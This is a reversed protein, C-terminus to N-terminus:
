WILSSGQSRAPATMAVWYAMQVSVIADIKESSEKKNFMVREQADMILVANGMCWRLLPRGEHTVRRDRIARSMDRIPENFMSCSQAMRVPELGEQLFIENLIQGNYPDYAIRTIGFERCCELVDEALQTIPLPSRILEEEYIWQAFPDVTIDRDCDEAIYSKSQVEYRYVPNDADDNEQFRAVMGFSALDDRGGLDVGIGIYDAQSWDSLRGRCADWEELNFAKTLSSVMQNCHYRKFANLRVPSRSAESAAQELYDKRISIGLNPNAKIWNTSDLPDDKDDLEFCYAFLQNDVVQKELVLKAYKYEEIWLYSTDDGATTVTVLLPQARYGSGTQMTNYFDKHQKRWAHLEDMLCMTPSLGDYPKDSGVCRISGLNDHFNIQQYVEETASELWSSSIRMRQIEKYVVQQIQERKTACLIVQAVQEVKMTVPNVDLGAMYLALGAGVTSKGNKRAMSWYVKRFRRAGDSVRKWGFVNAIAFKQWPELFFPEGACDGATHSLVNPFFDIAVDAATADFYYPFEETEQQELDEQHRVLAARVMKGVLVAGSLADDCYRQVDALNASAIM